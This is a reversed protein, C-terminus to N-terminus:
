LRSFDCDAYDPLLLGRKKFSKYTAVIIRYVALLKSSSRGFILSQHSGIWVIQAVDQTKGYVIQKQIKACLDRTRAHFGRRPWANYLLM